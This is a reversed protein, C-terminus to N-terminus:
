AATMGLDGLWAALSELSEFVRAASTEKVPGEMLRAIATECPQLHVEIRAHIRDWVERIAEDTVPEEVITDDVPADSEDPPEALKSDM